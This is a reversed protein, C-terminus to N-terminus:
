KPKFALFVLDQELDLVSTREAEPSSLTLTGARRIKGKRVEWQVAAEEGTEAASPSPSLQSLFQTVSEEVKSGPIEQRSLVLRGLKKEVSCLKGKCDATLTVANGRHSPRVIRVFAKQAGWCDGHMLVLLFGAWLTKM